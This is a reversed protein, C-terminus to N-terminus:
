LVGELRAEDLRSLEVPETTNALDYCRVGTFIGFALIISSLAIIVSRTIIKKM